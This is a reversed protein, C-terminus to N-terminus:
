PRESGKQGTRIIAYLIGYGEGELRLRLHSCRRPRIPVLFRKLGTGRLSCLPTWHSDDDYRASIRVRTDLALFMQLQLRFLYGSEQETLGLDGTEAMWSVPEREPTGSGTMAFVRGTEAELAYLEERCACFALAGFADERHWLKRGKDYVLLQWSGDSARVSLYYKSGIAGAAARVCSLQGLPRSIDEPLSGDYACVGGRSKYFLVEEVIALSEACGSQVGRCVTDRLAHAGSDSIYVKHLCNEKFFLPYGLYTVAGTFVGDSGLSARWSDTSIGMFCNWNKFDGLKSAYLENVTRGERSIGYRCGWLRNGAEVVYDMEPMRREVTVSGESALQIWQQGILGPVVIHDEGRDWIVTTGNLDALEPIRIGSLEVGDYKEFARGIGPASIKVYGASIGVWGADATYEYLLGHGTDLWIDGTEPAEPERDAATPERLPEGLVTSLQFVVDSDTSFAAEVSGHCTLDLTNVWIKDPLIVVYAGMSVLQKEGASLGLDVRFGNMVFERGEVRCLADKAILGSVKEADELIGRKKRPSLVPYGDSTLNKMDALEGSGIRPNKNLGKFVTVSSRFSRCPPLTPYKM